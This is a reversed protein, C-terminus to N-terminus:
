QLLNYISEVNYKSLTKKFISKALSNESLMLLLQTCSGLMSLNVRQSQLFDKQQYTFRSKELFIKINTLTKLCYM